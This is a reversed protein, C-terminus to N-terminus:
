IETVLHVIKLM